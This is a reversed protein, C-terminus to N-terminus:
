IQCYTGTLPFLARRLANRGTGWKRAKYIMMPTDGMACESQPRSDRNLLGIQEAGHCKIFVLRDIM